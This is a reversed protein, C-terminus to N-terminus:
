WRGWRDEEGPSQSRWLARPQEQRGRWRSGLKQGLKEENGLIIEASERVKLKLRAPGSAQEWPRPLPERTSIYSTVQKNIKWSLDLTISCVTVSESVLINQFEKPLTKKNEAFPLSTKLLSFKLATKFSIHGSSAAGVLRLCMLREM